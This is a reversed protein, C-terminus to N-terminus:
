KQENEEKRKGLELPTKPTISSIAHKYILMQEKGDIEVLLAFSDYSKIVANKIQYGNTVHITLPIGAKRAQNLFLEQINLTENQKPM